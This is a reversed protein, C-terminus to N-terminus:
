LRERVWWGVNLGNFSICFCLLLGTTSSGIAEKEIGNKRETTEKKESKTQNSGMVKKMRCRCKNWYIMCKRASSLISIVSKIIGNIGNETIHIYIGSPDSKDKQIHELMAEREIKWWVFQCM